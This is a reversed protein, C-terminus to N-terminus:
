PYNYNTHLVGDVNLTDGEAYRIPGAVTYTTLTGDSEAKFIQLEGGSDLVAPSGGGGGGPQWSVNVGNSTLVQNVTLSSQAPLLNNRAAQASIAGTGGNAIPVTDGTGFQALTHLDSNVKLPKQDAM